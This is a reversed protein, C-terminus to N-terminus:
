RRVRAGLSVPYGAWDCWVKFKLHLMQIFMPRGRNDDHEIICSGVWRCRNVKRIVIVASTPWGITPSVGNWATNTGYKSEEM